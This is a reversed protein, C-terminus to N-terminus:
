TKDGWTADIFSAGVATYPDTVDTAVTVNVPGAGVPPTTTERFELEVAALGGAVNGIAAFAVLAVTWIGVIGTEALVLM